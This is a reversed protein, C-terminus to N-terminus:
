QLSVSRRINAHSKLTQTDRLVNSITSPRSDYYEPYPITTTAKHQHKTRNDPTYKDNLIESIIYIYRTQIITTQQKHKKKHQQKIHQQHTHNPNPPTKSAAPTAKLISKTRIQNNEEQLSTNHLPTVKYKAQSITETDILQLTKTFEM